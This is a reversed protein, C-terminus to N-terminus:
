KSDLLLAFLISSEECNLSILGSSAAIKNPIGNSLIINKASAAPAIYWSGRMIRILHVTPDQFHLLVPCLDQHILLIQPCRSEHLSPPQFPRDNHPLVPLM